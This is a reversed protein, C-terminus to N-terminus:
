PGNAGRVAEEIQSCYCNSVRRAEKESQEGKEDEDVGSAPTVLRNVRVDAATIQRVRADLPPFNDFDDASTEVNVRELVVQRKHFEYGLCVMLLHNLARASFRLRVIAALTQNIAVARGAVCGVCDSRAGNSVAPHVDYTV